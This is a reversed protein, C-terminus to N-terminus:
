RIPKKEDTVGDRARYLEFLRRPVREAVNVDCLGFLGPM